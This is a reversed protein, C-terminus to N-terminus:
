RSRRRQLTLKKKPEDPDADIRELIERCLREMRELEAERIENRAEAKKLKEQTTELWTVYGAGFDDKWNDRVYNSTQKLRMLIRVRDDNM